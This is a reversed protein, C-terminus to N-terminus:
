KGAQVMCTLEISSLINNGTGIDVKTWDDESGEYFVKKLNRCDALAYDAIETVKKTLTLSMLSSAAPMYVLRSGDASYLVGVYDKYAPNGDAVSIYALNTCGSFAGAGIETVGTPLQVATIQTNGSFAGPAIKTVRDGSESKDPIILCTDTCTGIGALACTGDGASIFELGRSAATMPDTGTPIEEATSSETDTTETPTTQDGGNEDQKCAALFLGLVLLAALIIGIKKKM